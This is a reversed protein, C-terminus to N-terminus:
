GRYSRMICLIIKAMATNQFITHSVSENASITNRKPRRPVDSHGSDSTSQRVHQSFPQPTSSMEAACQGSSEDGFSALVKDIDASTLTLDRRAEPSQANRLEIERELLVTAKQPDEEARSLRALLLLIRDSPTIGEPIMSKPFINQPM